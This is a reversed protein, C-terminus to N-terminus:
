KEYFIRNFHIIVPPIGMEPFRWIQQYINKKQAQCKSAYGCITMIKGSISHCVDGKLSLFILNVLQNCFGPTERPVPAAKEATEVAHDALRGPKLEPRM